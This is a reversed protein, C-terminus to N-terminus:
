STASTYQRLSKSWLSNVLVIVGIGIAACLAVVSIGIGRTLAMAPVTTMLGVPVMFTLFSKIPQDYIAVPYRGFQWLAGYMVDLALSPAWLSVMMVLVRTAWLLVLATTFAVIGSLVNVIVLGQGHLGTGIVLLGLLMGILGLPAQTGLTVLYLSPIPKLLIEDLEGKKVREDFWMANPEIFTALVGSLVQYCGLVVLMESRSWGALSDVQTYVVMVTVVATLTTTLAMLLEFLLNTRFTLSRKLSLALSAGSLQVIRIMRDGWPRTVAYAVDGFM